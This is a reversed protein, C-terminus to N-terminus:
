NLLFSAESLGSLNVNLLKVVAGLANTGSDVYLYVDAGVQVAVIDKANSGIQGQAAATAEAFSAASTELYNAATGQIGVWFTDGAFDTIVDVEDVSSAGAQFIFRDAGEGGTM